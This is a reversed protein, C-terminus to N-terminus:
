ELETEYPWLAFGGDLVYVQDAGVGWLLCAANCARNSSNGYIVLPTHQPLERLRARLQEFPINAAGRLHGSRWEEQSRLDMLFFEAGQRESELLEDPTIGYYRGDLKNGIVHAAKQLALGGPGPLDLAALGQLSAGTQVAQAAAAALAMAAHSPGVAQTGLVRGDTKDAVLRVLLEGSPKGPAQLSHPLPECFISFEAELGAAVAEESGLGTRCVALDPVEPVPALV